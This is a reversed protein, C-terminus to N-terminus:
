RYWPYGKARRRILHELLFFPRIYLVGKRRLCFLDIVFHYLAGALLSFLVPYFFALFALLLFFDVTHFLCLGVYPIEKEVPLLDAFWRFMGPISLRHTRGVFLFYHDVDILVGGVSFLALETAPLFPSLAAAAVGTLVIHETLTM